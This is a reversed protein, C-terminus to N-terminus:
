LPVNPPLLFRKRRASCSGYRYLAWGRCRRQLDTQPGASGTCWQSASDAPEVTEVGVPLSLGFHLRAKPGPLLWGSPLSIRELCLLNKVPPSTYGYGLLDPPLTIWLPMQVRLGDIFESIM